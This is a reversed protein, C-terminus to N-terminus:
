MWVQTPFHRVFDISGYQFPLGMSPLSGDPLEYLHPYPGLVRDPVLAHTERITEVNAEVSLVCITWASSRDMPLITVFWHDRSLKRGSM